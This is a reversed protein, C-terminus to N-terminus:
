MQPAGTCTRDQLRSVQSGCCTAKMAPVPFATAAAKQSARSRGPRRGLCASEWPRSTVGATNVAQKREAANHLTTTTVGHHESALTHLISSSREESPVAAIGHHKTTVRDHVAGGM